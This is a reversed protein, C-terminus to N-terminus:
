MRCVMPFLIKKQEDNPYCLISENKTVMNFNLKQKEYKTNATKIKINKEKDNLKNNNTIKKIKIEFKKNNELVNWVNETLDM